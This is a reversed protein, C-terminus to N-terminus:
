AASRGTTIQALAASSLCRASACTTTDHLNVDAPPQWWCRRLLASADVGCSVSRVSTTCTPKSSNEWDTGAFVVSATFTAGQDRPSCHRVCSGTPCCPAMDALGCSQGLATGSGHPLCVVAVIHPATANAECRHTYLQEPSTNVHQTAPPHVAKALRATAPAGRLENICVGSFLRSVAAGM